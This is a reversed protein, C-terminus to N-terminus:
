ASITMALFETRTRPKQPRKKHIANLAVINFKGVGVGGLLPIAQATPFYEGGPLPLPPNVVSFLWYNLM